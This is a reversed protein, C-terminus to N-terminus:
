HYVFLTDTCKYSNENRKLFHMTNWRISTDIVLKDSRFLVINLVPNDRFFDDASKGDVSMSVPLFDGSNQGHGAWRVYDCSLICDFGQIKVSHDIASRVPMSLGWSVFEDHSCGLFLISVVVVVISIVIKM